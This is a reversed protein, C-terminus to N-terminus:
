SHRDRPLTGRSRHHQRLINGATRRCCGTPTRSQSSQSHPFGNSCAIVVLGAVSDTVAETAATETAAVATATAVAVMAVAVVEAMATVETAVAEVVVTATATATAQAERARGTAVVEMLRAEEVEGRVVMARAAVAM